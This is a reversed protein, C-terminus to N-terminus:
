LGMLESVNDRLSSKDVVSTAVWTFGSESFIEVELHYALKLSGPISIFQQVEIDESPEIYRDERKFM